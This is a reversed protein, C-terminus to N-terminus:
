ANLCTQKIEKGFLRMRRNLCRQEAHTLFIGWTQITFQPLVTVLDGSTTAPASIFDPWQAIGLGQLTAELLCASSNSNKSPQFEM